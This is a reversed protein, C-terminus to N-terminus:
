FGSSCKKQVLSQLAKAIEIFFEPQYNVAENLKKNLIFPSQLAADQVLKELVSLEKVSSWWPLEGNLFYYLVIDVVSEHSLANVARLQKESDAQDESSKLKKSNVKQIEEEIKKGQKRLNNQGPEKKQVDRNSDALLTKQTIPM